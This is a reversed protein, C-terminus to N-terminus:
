IKFGRFLLDSRLKEEGEFLEADLGVLRAGKINAPVDDVFFCHEAACGALRIAEKYIRPDPKMVKMEFSLVVHHFWKSINWQSEIREWHIENTNSLLVFSVQESYKEHLSALLAINSTLPSFIDSAAIRLADPAVKTKFHSEFSQHLSNFDILGQEFQFELGDDFLFSKILIPTVGAVEAIQSCAREVSFDILVKGLDFILARPASDNM